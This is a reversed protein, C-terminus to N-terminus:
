VVGATDSHIQQALGRPAALGAFRQLALPKM